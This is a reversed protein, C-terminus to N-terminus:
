SYKKAKQRYQAALATQNTALAMKAICGAALAQQASFDVWGAKGVDPRPTNDMGSGLMSIYYLDRNKDSRCNHTLWEDYSTLVPLVRRIRSSDGTIQYCRWEMWAFLPPNVM